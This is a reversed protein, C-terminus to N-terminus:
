ESSLQAGMDEGLQQRQYNSLMDVCPQPASAPEHLFCHRVDASWSEATCHAIMIEGVSQKGAPSTGETYKVMEALADKCPVDAPAPAPDVLAPAAVTNSSSVSKSSTGAPHCGFLALALFWRM